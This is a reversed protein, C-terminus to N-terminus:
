SSSCIIMEICPLYLTMYKAYFLYMLILLVAHASVRKLKQWVGKTAYAENMLSCQKPNGSTNADVSCTMIYLESQNNEIQLRVTFGSAPNSCPCCLM